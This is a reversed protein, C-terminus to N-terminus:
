LITGFAWPDFKIICTMKLVQHYLIPGLVLNSSIPGLVLNLSVPGLVLNSSVPGLALNSSVPGLVVETPPFPLEYIRHSLGPTGFFTKDSLSLSFFARCCPCPCVPMYAYRLFASM